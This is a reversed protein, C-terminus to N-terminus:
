AEARKERRVWEGRGAMGFIEAGDPTQSYVLEGRLITAKVRGVLLHGHLPTYRNLSHLREAQVTWRETESLVAFDADLGAEIRGKRNDIGLFRAPRSSTVEILRQLTLRGKRVGESYLFPLSTEVGPVGGYDTWISGTTKEEPWQGAAHDTAVYELDGSALGEWLGERDARSKLAPATKLLAGQAELDAATFALFHPCTEGTMPLGSKRAEAIVDAAARCAVHVIHVRAGTTRCLDAMARVASVEVEEPRSAAYDLPGNRGAGKLNAELAKVLERDEAHVGVPIGLNRAEQLVELFQAHSLDRFTDMGSLMYVKISSVGAEVLGRLNRRWDPTEMANGSVGGWLMFDIHAKPRIVDLKAQLNHPSTVPPLSTCPMDVVCTVGGAAAARTGTEFTERHTFGPDDFHVHGDIVGPLLLHGGLDIVEADGGGIEEGGRAVTAIKGNVVLVQGPATDNEKVPMRLNVLLKKM